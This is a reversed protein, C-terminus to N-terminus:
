PPTAGKCSAKWDIAGVGPTIVLSAPSLGKADLGAIFVIRVIPGTVGIGIVFGMSKLLFAVAALWAILM